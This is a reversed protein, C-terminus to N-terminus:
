VNESLGDIITRMMKRLVLTSGSGPTHAVRLQAVAIAQAETLM